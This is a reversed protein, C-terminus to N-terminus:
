GPKTACFLFVNAFLTPFSRVVFQSLFVPFVPLLRGGIGGIPILEVPDLGKLLQLIKGRSFHHLHNPDEISRGVVFALRARWHFSNPVSGIFRGGPVMVRRVEGVAFAPDVLHELVEGAVVIDFSCDDFSLHERNLDLCVTAIGLRAHALSLAQADIDVGTVINGAVYRQTLTGDRCGLDLVRRGTGIWAAFQPGREAMRYSFGYRRAQEHHASCAGQSQGKRENTEVDKYM